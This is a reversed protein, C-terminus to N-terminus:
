RPSARAAPSGATTRSQTSLTAPEAEPWCRARRTACRASGVNSAPTGGPATARRSSTSRPSCRQPTPEAVATAAAQPKPSLPRHWSVSASRKADRRCPRRDDCSIRPSRAAASDEYRHTFSAWTISGERWAISRVDVAGACGVVAVGPRRARRADAVRAHNAGRTREHPRVRSQGVGTGALKKGVSGSSFAADSEFRASTSNAHRSARRAFIPPRSRLRERCTSWRSARTPRASSRSASRRRGSGAAPDSASRRRAVRLELEDLRGAVVRQRSQRRGVRDDDVAVVVVEREALLQPEDVLPARPGPHRQQHQVVDAPRQGAAVAIVGIEPDDAQLRRVGAGAAREFVQPDTVATAFVIM